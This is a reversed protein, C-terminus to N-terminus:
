VAEYIEQGPSLRVVSRSSQDSRTKSKPESQYKKQDESNIGTSGFGQNGRGTEELSGAEVIAPTKVREFIMQSIKDGMNTKFDEEGFNFLIVGLEGRYDEDVVGAGLDISKKLALGSRPAIRGYCGTPMSISLGTKVLVKGHTPVVATQAAALDYGAAGATGRVQLRANNCLRKVKVVGQDTKMVYLECTRWEKNCSNKCDNSIKFDDAHVFAWEGGKSLNARSNIQENQWKWFKPAKLVFISSRIREDKLRNLEEESSLVTVTGVKVFNGLWNGQLLATHVANPVYLKAGCWDVIPNVLKLWSMGLVLDVDHLLNTVTLGIAVTLRATVVPIDPIYGGSLIKEGNGLELFTDRPAGKLGCAAVCAPSM